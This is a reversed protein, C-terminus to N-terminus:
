ADVTISLGPLVHPHEIQVAQLKFADLGFLALVTPAYGFSLTPFHVTLNRFTASLKKWAKTALTQYSFGYAFFV